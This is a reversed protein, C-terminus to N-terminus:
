ANNHHFRTIPECGGSPTTFYGTPCKSKVPAQVTISFIKAKGSTKPLSPMMATMTDVFVGAASVQSVAKATPQKFPCHTKNGTLFADSASDDFTKSMYENLGPIGITMSQGQSDPISVGMQSVRLIRNSQDTPTPFSLKKLDADSVNSLTMTNGQTKCQIEPCVKNALHGVVNLAWKSHPDQAPRTPRTPRTAPAAPAPTKDKGCM